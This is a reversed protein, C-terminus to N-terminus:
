GYLWGSFTQAIGSLGSGFVAIGFASLVLVAGAAELISEGHQNIFEKM